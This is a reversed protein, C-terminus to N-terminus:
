AVACANPDTLIGHVFRRVQEELEVARHRRANPCGEQHGNRAHEQCRYYPTRKGNSRKV